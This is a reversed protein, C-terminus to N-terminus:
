REVAIMQAMPSVLPLDAFNEVTGDIDLLTADGRRITLGMRLRGRSGAPFAFMVAAREDQTIDVPQKFDWQESGYAPDDDTGACAWLLVVDITNRPVFEWGVTVMGLLNQPETRVCHVDSFWREEEQTMGRM